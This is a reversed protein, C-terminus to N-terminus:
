NHFYNGLFTDINMIDALEPDKKGDFLFIGWMDGVKNLDILTDQDGKKFLLYRAQSTEVLKLQPWYKRIVMRANRMQYFSNHTDTEFDISDTLPKFKLLQLSDPSYFVASSVRIVLTDSSSSSPKTIAVAKQQKSSTEQTKEGPKDACSIYIAMLLVFLIFRM